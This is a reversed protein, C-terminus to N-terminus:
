RRWVAFSAWLAPHQMAPQQLLMRQALRVARAVNDNKVYEGYFADMWVAAAEDPIAHLSNLVHRAGAVFLAQQLSLIQGGTNLGSATTCGSLTVLLTETLHLDYCREVTLVEDALKLGSFLPVDDKQLTHAAIHIVAPSPKTQALAAIAPQDVFMRSNPLLSGVRLAEARVEVVREASAAIVLPPSSKQPQSVGDLAFLAGSQIMVIEFQESLYASGLRLAAFPLSFLPDCPAIALVHGSGVNPMQALLPKVLRDGLQELIPQCEETLTAAHQIRATKPLSLVSTFKLRLRTLLRNLEAVPMLGIAYCGGVRDACFGVIQDGCRAFELLGDADMKSLTQAAAQFPSLRAANRAGNVQSHALRQRRRLDLLRSEIARAQSQAQEGLAGAAVSANDQALAWHLAALQQRLHSIEDASTDLHAESAQAHEAHQRQELLEVFASSKTRWASALAEFPQNREVALLILDEYVSESQTHLASKLEELSLASRMDDALAAAALFHQFAQEPQVSHLARGLGLWAQQQLWLEQQNQAFALVTQFGAVATDAEGLMAHAQASLLDIHSQDYRTIPQDNLQSLCRLAQRPEDQSLLLRARELQVAQIISTDGLNHATREAHQLATVATKFEGRLCLLEAIQLRLKAIETKMDRVEFAVLAEELYSLATDHAGIKHFLVGQLWRCTSAEMSNNLRVFAAEAEHLRRLAQAPQGCATYFDGLNMDIRAVELQLCHQTALNRNDLYTQEVESLRGLMGLTLARNNGASIAISTFGKESALAIVENHAQLAGDFRGQYHLLEGHNRMLRLLFVPQMPFQRLFEPLAMEREAEAEKFHGKITYLHSLSGHIRAVGLADGSQAVAPLANQYLGIALNPDYLSAWNGRAWSALATLLPADSCAGAMRLAFRTMKEALAPAAFLADGDAYVAKLHQFFSTDIWQQHSAIWGDLQDDELETLKTLEEDVFLSM